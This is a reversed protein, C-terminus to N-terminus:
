GPAGAGAFHLIAEPAHCRRGVLGSPQLGAGLRRGVSPLSRWVVYHRAGADAAVAEPDLGDPPRGAIVALVRDPDVDQLVATLVAASGVARAPLVLIVRDVLRVWEHLAARDRGVDVVTVAYAERAATMVAALAHAPVTDVTGTLLPLGHAQPVAEKLQDGAIRGVAERLETWRVGPEEAADLMEDMGGGWANADVLLAEVGTRRAAEAVAICLSTAGVGGCGGIVGVVSGGEATIDQALGRARPRTDVADDALVDVLWASADPVVAVRDADWHGAAEWLAAGEGALGVIITTGRWPRDRSRAVADDASLMGALAVDSGLLVVPASLLLPDVATAESAPGGERLDAIVTVTRGAASAVREIEAQLLASGTM